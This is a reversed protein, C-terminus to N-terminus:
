PIVRDFLREGQLFVQTRDALQRRSMLLLQRAPEGFDKSVAVTSVAIHGHVAFTGDYDCAFLMGCTFRHLHPAPEFRSSPPATRCQDLRVFEDQHAHSGTGKAQKNEFQKSKFVLYRYLHAAGCRVAIISSKPDKGSSRRWGRDITSLNPRSDESVRARLNIR